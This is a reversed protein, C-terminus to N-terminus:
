FSLRTLLDNARCDITLQAQLAHLIAALPHGLGLRNLLNPFRGSRTPFQPQLRAYNISLPDARHQYILAPRRVAATKIAAGSQITQTLGEFCPINDNGSSIVM